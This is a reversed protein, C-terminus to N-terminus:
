NSKDDKVIFNVITDVKVDINDLRKELQKHGAELKGVQDKLSSGGNPKLETRIEDFQGKVEHRIWFTVGAGVVSIIGILALVSPAWSLDLSVVGPSNTTLFFMM